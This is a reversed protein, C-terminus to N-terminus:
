CTMGAVPSTLNHVLPRPLLHFGQLIEELEESNSAVGVGTMVHLRALLLASDQGVDFDM